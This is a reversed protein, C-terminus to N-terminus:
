DFRNRHRIESYTVGFRQEDPINGIGAVHKDKDLEKLWDRVDESGWKSVKELVRKTDETWLQSTAYWSDGLVTAKTKLIFTSVVILVCLVHLLFVIMVVAYGRHQTPALVHVFHTTEALTHLNGGVIGASYYQQVLINTLLAQIALAPRQATMLVHQFLQFHDFGAVLCGHPRSLSPCVCMSCLQISCNAATNPWCQMSQKTSDTLDPISSSNLPLVWDQSHLDM